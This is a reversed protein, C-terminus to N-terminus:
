VRSSVTVSFASIKHGFLDISLQSCLCLRFKMIGNVLIFSWSVAGNMGGAGGGGLFFLLFTRSRVKLM